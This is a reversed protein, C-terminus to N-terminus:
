PDVPVMLAVLDQLDPHDLNVLTEVQARLDLCVLCDQGALTERTEKIERQDVRERTESQGKPDLHDLPDLPDKHDMLDM